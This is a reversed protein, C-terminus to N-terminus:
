KTTQQDSCLCRIDTGSAITLSRVRFTVAFPFFENKKEERANEEKARM